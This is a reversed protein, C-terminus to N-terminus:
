LFRLDTSSRHTEDVVVVGTRVGVGKRRGLLTTVLVQLFLFIKELQFSPLGNVSRKSRLIIILTMMM